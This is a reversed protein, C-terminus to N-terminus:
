SVASKLTSASYVSDVFVQIRIIRRSVYWCTSQTCIKQEIKFTLALRVAVEM